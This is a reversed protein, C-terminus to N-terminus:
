WKWMKDQFHSLGLEPFSSSYRYFMEMPPFPPKIRNVMEVPFPLENNSEMVMQVDPYFHCRQKEKQDQSMEKRKKAMRQRNAEKDKQKQEESRSARM